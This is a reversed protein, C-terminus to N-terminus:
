AVEGGLMVRDDTSTGKPAEPMLSGRGEDPTLHDTLAVGALMAVVFAVASPAGSVLSVLGPGPCFGGLAWGVGFLASGVILRATLDRRTPVSFTSAFVPSARRAVVRYAVMHVLVAGGMVFMLSPDWAGLFDLFGRVKETRTMGSLALGFGFVSGAVLAAARAGVFDRRSPSM